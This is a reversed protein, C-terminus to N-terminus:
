SFGWWFKTFRKEGMRAVSRSRRLDRSKVLASMFIVFKRMRYYSTRSGEEGDTQCVFSLYEM